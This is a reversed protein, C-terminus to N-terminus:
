SGLPMTELKQKDLMWSLVCYALQPSVLVVPYHSFHRVFQELHWM